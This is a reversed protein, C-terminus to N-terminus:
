WKQYKDTCAAEQTEAGPVSIFSTNQFLASFGNVSNLPGAGPNKLHVMLSSLDSVGIEM